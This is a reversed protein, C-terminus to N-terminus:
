FFVPVYEPSTSIPGSFRLDLISERESIMMAVMTQEISLIMTSKLYKQVSVTEHLMFICCM